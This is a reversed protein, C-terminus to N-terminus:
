KAKMIVDCSLKLKMSDYEERLSEESVKFEKYGQYQNKKWYEDDLMEDHYVKSRVRRKRIIDRRLRM